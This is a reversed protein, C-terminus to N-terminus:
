EVTITIVKSCLAPNHPIHQYDGLLLQLTHTGPSLTIETSSSGDGFHVHQEDAPIPSGLDPLGTDILLHHHGSHPRNDGAKVVDMSTAGFEIKVPNTVTAGDDPTIFFVSAGEVSATRPTVAAKATESAVKTDHATDAPTAAPEDAAKQGCATLVLLTASLMLFRLNM